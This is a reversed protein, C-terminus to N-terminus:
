EFSGPIGLLSSFFQYSVREPQLRPRHGRACHTSEKFLARDYVAGVPVGWTKLM